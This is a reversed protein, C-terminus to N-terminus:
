GEKRLGLKMILPKMTLGQIVLSFVVVSFTLILITDRGEFSTPLSLALAISLSGKLGGWNMIVKWKSPIKKSLSTSMYLSLTRAILVIIIAWIILLWKDTFDINRIELGVMLFILSNAIETITDMFSNINVKTTDTMGIRAGYSGYILGSVVVAIVGSFHFHEAIFYSGFYMLLSVVIEFPYDDYFRIVQSIFFGLIAGVVTGGIVFKLFLLIGSGVGALGMEMYSLLYITTINFLVVAIGDNFLSETEMVTSLKESVGLNKFITIVSIPDTASMLAAFTFAVVLSLDLLFYTCLGIVLFTTFTGLFAMSFSVAKYEFFHEIPMKLTADGLLIPLFLSVIIAHFVNSQTIFNEAAEFVTIETLGLIIGVMVLAISYPQKILKAIGIVFISIAMLMLIEIFVEHFHM